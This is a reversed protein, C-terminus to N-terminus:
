GSPAGSLAVSGTTANLKRKAGDVTLVTVTAKGIKATLM